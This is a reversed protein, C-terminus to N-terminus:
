IGLHAMYPINVTGVNVMVQKWFHTFKGYMSMPYISTTQTTKLVLQLFICMVWISAYFLQPTGGKETYVEVRLHVGLRSLGDCVSVLQLIHPGLTTFFVWLIWPVITYKGVHFGYVDVLHLYINWVHIRHSLVVGWGKWQNPRRIMTIERTRTQVWIWSLRLLHVQCHAKLTEM